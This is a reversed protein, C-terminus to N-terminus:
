YEPPMGGPMCAHPAETKGGSIVDDIRLIMSASEVASKLAQEKVSLPEIVGRKYMDVICAHNAVIYDIKKIDLQKLNDILARTMTPDVTDILATKENGKILYSNYSTGDPLPILEDFLRRDWDVAGVWYIGAKIKRPKM